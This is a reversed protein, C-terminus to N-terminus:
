ESIETADCSAVGPRLRSLLLSRANLPSRSTLKCLGWGEDELCHGVNPHLLQLSVLVPRCDSSRRQSKFLKPDEGGGNM